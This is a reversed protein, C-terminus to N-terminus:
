LTRRPRRWDFGSPPPPALLGISSLDMPASDFHVVDIGKEAACEGDIFFRIVYDGAELFVPNIDIAFTWPNFGNPYEWSDSPFMPEDIVEHTRARNVRKTGHLPTVETTFTHEMGEDEPRWHLRGVLVMESPFPFGTPASLHDFGAGYISYMGRAGDMDARFCIEFSELRPDIAPGVRHQTEYRIQLWEAAADVTRDRDADSAFLNGAVCRVLAEADIDPIRPMRRGNLSLFTMAALWATRKNGDTFYQTTAFAHMYVAAKSWLDPYRETGFGGSQPRHAGAEIGARDAVGAGPGGHEANIAILADVSLYRTM